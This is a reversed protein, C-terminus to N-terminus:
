PLLASVEASDGIWILAPLIVEPRGVIVDAVDEEGIKDIFNRQQLVIVVLRQLRGEAPPLNGTDNRRM